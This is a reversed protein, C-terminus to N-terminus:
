VTVATPLRPPAPSVAVAVNVTVTGLRVIVGTEPGTFVCTVTVPNMNVADDPAVIAKLRVSWVGLPQESPVNVPVTIVVSAVPPNTQVNLIGLSFAPGYQTTPSSVAVLVNVAISVNM